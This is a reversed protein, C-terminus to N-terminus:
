RRLPRCDLLEHPKGDYTINAASPAPKFEIDAKEIVFTESGTVTYNGNPKDIINVTATNGADVNNAYRIEYEGADITTSGDVVIVTPEKAKGDYTYSVLPDGNEDFLSFTESEFPSPM